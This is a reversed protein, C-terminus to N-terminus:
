KCFRKIQDDVAPTFQPIANLLQKAADAYSQLGAPVNEQATAFSERALRALTCNKSDQAETVASQGVLFASAGMLFKADSSPELQDSLRLFQVARQLDARNKSVNGAKYANSGESLAIKALTSKDGGNTSAFRIVSVVSDPQKLAGYILALQAYGGDVKPNISVARRAATLAQANQGAKSLANAQVLLLSANNPYKSIGQGLIQAAQAPQNLAAYAAASRIYYSSDAAATDARILESGTQLALNYEKAALLVLWATRLTKPDGPNSKVSELIIPVALAAKGSAALSNVVQDRLRDNGPDAALLGTLAQTARESDGRTQYIDAAWRLAAINRPDTARIRDSVALVSDPKKQEQLANGLCVGLITGTPYKLLGARAAREAEVHKGERFLSYCSREAALQERAAQYSRAVAQAAQDLKAAEAGPLPQQLSNDRALVLRSDIRVGTPTRTVTGEIYEDARLLSALAKADNPALAETTSYGSATLTSNIDAKPIVTLRKADVDRTIRARLAEATQIGLEKDASAFTSIMVKPPPEPPRRQAAAGAFPVASTLLFLAALARPSTIDFRSM